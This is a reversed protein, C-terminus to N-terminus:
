HKKKTIASLISKMGDDQSSDPQNIEDNNSLGGEGNNNQSDTINANSGSGADNNNSDNGNGNLAQEVQEQNNDNSVSSGNQELNTSEETYDNMTDVLSDFSRNALRESIKKREEYAEDGTLGDLSAVLPKKLKIAMNIISDIAIGKFKKENDAITGKLEDIQQEFNTTIKDMEAKVVSSDLVQQETEFNFQSVKEEKDRHTNINGGQWAASKRKLVLEVRSKDTGRYHELLDQAAMIHLKDIVPITRCKGAFVYNGLKKKNEITIPSSGKKLYDNLISIVKDKQRDKLNIYIGNDYAIDCANKIDVKDNQIMDLLVGLTATRMESASVEVEGNSQKSDSEIRSNNSSNTSDVHQQNGEDNASGTDESATSRENATFHVSEDIISDNNILFDTNFEESYANTLDNINGDNWNGVALSFNTGVVINRPEISDKTDQGPLILEHRKQLAREDAPTSVFSLEKYKKDGFFWFCPMDKGIKSKFMTGEEAKYVKSRSHTCDFDRISRGCISCFVSSANSGAGTSLTRMRGDIIMEISNEDLIAYILEIHGDPKDFNNDNRNQYMFPTAVLVRGITKDVDTDHNKQVPRGYTGNATSSFWTKSNSIINDLSYWSYNHNIFNYHTADAAGLIFPKEYQSKLRKSLNVFVKENSGTERHHTADEIQEVNGKKSVYCASNLDIFDHIYIEADPPANKIAKDINTNKSM